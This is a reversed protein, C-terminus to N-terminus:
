GLHLWATSDAPLTAGELGLSSVLVEADAPLQVDSGGVNTM